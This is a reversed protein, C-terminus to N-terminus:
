FLRHGKSTIMKQHNNLCLFKINHYLHLIYYSLRFTIIDFITWCWKLFSFLINGFYKFNWLHRDHCSGTSSINGLHRIKLGETTCHNDSSCLKMWRLRLDPEVCTWIRNAYHRLNAITLIGAITGTLFLALRRKGTLWVVFVIWWWWFFYLYFFVLSNFLTQWKAFPYPYLLEHYYVLTQLHSIIPALLLVFGEM